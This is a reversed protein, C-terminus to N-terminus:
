GVPAATSSRCQRVLVRRRRHRGGLLRKRESQQGRPPLVALVRRARRQLGARGFVPSLITNAYTQSSAWVLLKQCPPVTSGCGDPIEGGFLEFIPAYGRRDAPAQRIRDPLNSSTVDAYSRLLHINARVGIQPTPFCRSALPADLVEEACTTGKRRGDNANIGGYNNFEPRIQGFDPFNFGSTEIVAQVFAMDGRVGEVAGEDIFLQALARVDNNLMPLRPPGSGRANYWNVLQNANLLSPGMVPTETTTAADAPSAFEVAAVAAFSVVALVAALMRRLTM